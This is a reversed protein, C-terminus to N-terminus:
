AVQVALGFSMAHVRALTYYGRPPAKFTADMHISLADLLAPLVGVNIFILAEGDGATVRGFFFQNEGRSDM